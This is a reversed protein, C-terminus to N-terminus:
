MTLDHILVNRLCYGSIQMHRWISSKRRSVKDPMKLRIGKMGNAKVGMGCFNNQGLTVASCSFGFNGTELCSQAFVIDGRIKEARGEQLYKPIMDLVSQPVKPNKKKIYKTMQDATAKATGTVQQCRGIKESKKWQYTFWKRSRIMWLFSTVWDLGGNNKYPYKKCKFLNFNLRPLGSMLM